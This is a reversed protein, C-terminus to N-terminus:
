GMNGRYSIVFTNPTKQWMTSMELLYERQFCIQDVTSEEFLLSGNLLLARCSVLDSWITQVPFRYPLTKIEESQDDEEIPLIVVEGDVIDWRHNEALDLLWDRMRM